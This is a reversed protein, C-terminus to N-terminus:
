SKVGMTYPNMYKGVAVGGATGLISSIGQILARSSAAENNANTVDAQFSGARDREYPTLASGYGSATSLYTSPFITYGSATANAKSTDSTDLNNLLGLESMLLQSGESIEGRRAADRVIDARTQFDQIAKSGGSSVQYDTGFKRNLTETLAAEDEALSKELAPSVELEGALAKKTREAQLGAIDAQAKRLNYEQQELPTMNALTEEETMKQYTPTFKADITAKEALRARQAAQNAPDTRYSDPANDYATIEQELQKSRAIEEDTAAPTVAKLGYGELMYPTLADTLSQSKQLSALQLSRLKEESETPAPYEITTDGGFCGM